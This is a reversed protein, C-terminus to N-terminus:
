VDTIDPGSRLDLLTTFERRSAMCRAVMERKKKKYCGSKITGLSSISPGVPPRLPAKLTLPDIVLKILPQHVTAKFISAEGPNRGTYMRGCRCRDERRSVHHNRVNCPMQYVREFLPAITISRCSFSPFPPFASSSSASFSSSREAGM